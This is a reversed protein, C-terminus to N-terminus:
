ESLLEEQPEKQNAISDKVWEYFECASSWFPPTASITLGSKDIIGTYEIQTVPSKITTHCSTFLLIFLTFSLKYMKRWYM